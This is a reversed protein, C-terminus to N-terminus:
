LIVPALKLSNFEVKIDCYSSKIDTFDKPPPPDREEFYSEAFSEVIVFLSLGYSAGM